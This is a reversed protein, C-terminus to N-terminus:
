RPGQEERLVIWCSLTRQPAWFLAWYPIMAHAPGAGVWQLSCGQRCPRMDTGLCSCAGLNLARLDMGGEPLGATDASALGRGSVSNTWCPAAQLGHPTAKLCLHAQGAMKTGWWFALRFAWRSASSLNWGLDSM